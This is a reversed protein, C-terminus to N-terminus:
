DEQPADSDPCRIAEWIIAISEVAATPHAMAERRLAEVMFEPLLAVTLPLVGRLLKRRGVRM